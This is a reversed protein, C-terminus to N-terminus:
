AAKGVYRRISSKRKENSIFLPYTADGQMRCLEPEHSARRYSDTSSEPPKRKRPSRM